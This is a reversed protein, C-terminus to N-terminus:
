ETPWCSRHVFLSLGRAATDLFMKVASRANRFTKCVATIKLSSTFKMYLCWIRTSLSIHSMLQHQDFIGWVANTSPLKEHRPDKKKFASVMLLHGDYMVKQITVQLWPLSLHSLARLVQSRPLCSIRRWALIALLCRPRGRACFMWLVGCRRLFQHAQLHHSHLQVPRSEGSIAMRPAGRSIARLYQGTQNEAQLQEM